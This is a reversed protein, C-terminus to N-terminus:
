EYAETEREAESSILVGMFRLARKESNEKMLNSLVIKFTLVHVGASLRTPLRYARPEEQFVYFEALDKGDVQMKVMPGKGYAFDASAIFFVQSDDRAITVSTSAEGESFFAKMWSRDLATSQFELPAVFKVGSTEEAYGALDDRARDPDAELQRQWLLLSLNPSDRQLSVLREYGDRGNGCRSRLRVDYLQLVPDHPFASLADTIKSTADECVDPTAGILATRMGCWVAAREALLLLRKRAALIEVVVSTSVRDGSSVQRVLASTQALFLPPSTAFDALKAALMEDGSLLASGCTLRASDINEDGFTRALSLERKALVWEGNKFAVRGILAHTIMQSLRDHRSVLGTTDPIPVASGNLCASALAAVTSLAAGGGMWGDKDPRCAALNELAQTTMGAQYRAIGAWYLQEGRPKGVSPELWRLAEVHKGSTALARGMVLRAPEMDPYRRLVRELLEQGEAVRNANLLYTAKNVQLIGIGKAVPRSVAYLVGGAALLALLHRSNM